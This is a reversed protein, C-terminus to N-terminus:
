VRRIQVKLNIKPKRKYCRLKIAGNETIWEDVCSWAKKVAKVHEPSPDNGFDVFFSPFDGERITEINISQVFPAVDGQWGAASVEYTRVSLRQDTKDAWKKIDMLFKIIKGVAKKVTDGTSPFPYQDEISSISEIITDSITGGKQGVLQKTVKILESRKVFDNIDIDMSINYANDFKFYLVYDYEVEGATIAPIKEGTEDQGVAFLIESENDAKAYLGIQKLRYEENVSLNSLTITLKVKQTTPELSVSDIQLKQKKSQVSTLVSPNSSYADSSEAKTFVITSGAILKSQLRKGAETIIFDM